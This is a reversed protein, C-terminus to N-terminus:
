QCRLFRRFASVIIELNKGIGLLYKFYSKYKAEKIGSTGLRCIRIFMKNDFSWLYNIFKDIDINDAYIVKCFDNMINENIIYENLKIISYVVITLVHSHGWSSEFQNLPLAFSSLINATLKGSSGFTNGAGLNTLQKDYFTKNLQIHIHLTLYQALPPYHYFFNFKTDIGYKKKKIYFKTYEELFTDLINKRNDVIYGNNAKKILSGMTYIYDKFFVDYTVSTKKRGIYDKKFKDGGFIIKLEKKTIFCSDIKQVEEKKKDYKKFEKSLGENYVYEINSIINELETIDFTNLSTYWAITRYDAMKVAYQSHFDHVVMFRYKEDIYFPCHKVNYFSDNKYNHLVFKNTYNLTALTKSGGNMTTMKQNMKKLFEDTNDELGNDKNYTDEIELIKGIMKKCRKKISNSIANRFTIIICRIINYILVFMTVGNENVIKMLKKYGNYNEEIEIIYTDKTYLVYKEIYSDYLKCDTATCIGHCNYPDIKIFEVLYKLNNHHRYCIDYNYFDYINKCIPALYNMVNIGLEHLTNLYETTKPIINLIYHSDYHSCCLSVSCAGYLRTIKQSLIRNIKFNKNIISHNKDVMYEFLPSEISSKDDNFKYDYLKMYHTKMTSEGSTVESEDLYKNDCYKIYLKNFTGINLKINLDQIAQEITKDYKYKLINILYKLNLGRNNSFSTLVVFESKTRNMLYVSINIWPVNYDYMNIFIFVDEENIGKKSFYNIISNYMHEFQDIDSEDIFYINRYKSKKIIDKLVDYKGKDYLKKNHDYNEVKITVSFVINYIDDITCNNIDFDSTIIFESKFPNPMMFFYNTDIVRHSNHFQKKLFINSVGMVNLVSKAFLPTYGCLVSKNDNIDHNWSIDEPKNKRFNYMLTNTGTAYKVIINQTSKYKNTKGFKLTKLFSKYYQMNKPFIEKTILSSYKKNNLFKILYRCRNYMYFDYQEDIINKM